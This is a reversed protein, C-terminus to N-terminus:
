YGAQDGHRVSQPAVRAVVEIQRPGVALRRRVEELRSERRLLVAAVREDEMGGGPLDGVRAVLLRDFGGVLLHLLKWVDRGGDIGERLLALRLDALVLLRREDRDQEIHAAALEGLLNGLADEVCPIGAHLRA